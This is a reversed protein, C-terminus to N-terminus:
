KCGLAAMVKQMDQWVLKKIEKNGENRILYSPHFTPMVLIKGYEIFNGRLSSMGAASPHFSDTAVKGLGVIVRPAITEIQTLLYPRCTEIEDRFPTRNQPPRCKVVNTIYVDGRAFGMAAIIKTLLQGAKGVFPRGQIDEDAGPAEGIFMLPAEYSGEGPVALTRGQSLRCLRCRLVKEEVDKLIGQREQLSKGPEVVSDTGTGAAPKGEARRRALKTGDKTEPAFIFDAGIETLFRLEEELKRDVPRNQGAM